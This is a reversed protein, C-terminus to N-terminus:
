RLSAIWRDYFDSQEAVTSPVVDPGTEFICVLDTERAPSGMTLRYAKEGDGMSEIMPSPFVNLSSGYCDLLIGVTELESRLSLLARFYSVDSCTEFAQGEIELRLKREDPQDPEDDWVFLVGRKRGGSSRAGVEFARPVEM